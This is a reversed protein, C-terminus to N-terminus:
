QCGKTVYSNVYMLVCMCVTCTCTHTYRYAKLMLQYLNKNGVLWDRETSYPFEGHFGSHIHFPRTEAASFAHHSTDMINLCTMCLRKFTLEEETSLRSEETNAGCLFDLWSEPFKTLLANLESEPLPFELWPSPIWFLGTKQPMPQPIHRSTAPMARNYVWDSPMTQKTVSPELPIDVPILGPLTNALVAQPSLQDDTDPSTGASEMSNWSLSDSEKPKSDRPDNTTTTIAHGSSHWSEAPSCPLTNMRQAWGSYTHSSKPGEKPTTMIKGGDGKEGSGRRDGEEECVGEEGKSEGEGKKKSGEKERASTCHHYLVWVVCKLLNSAFRELVSPQDIIGTLVSRADSYTQVVASDVPHLISLPSTNLWFGPSSCSKPNYAATFIDDIAAAEITHCSTEQLELGRLNLCFYGQGVELVVGVLLRDQYRLLYYTGPQISGSGKSCMMSLARTLEPVAQQYYVSDKCKTYSSGYNVLSPWFRQTRPFSLLFVPLTFLPLLPASVVSSFVVVALIFPLLLPGVVLITTYLWCHTKQRDRMIFTLYYTFILWLKLLVNGCVELGVGVILAQTGVGLRIWTSDQPLTLLLLATM